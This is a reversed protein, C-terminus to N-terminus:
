DTPAAIINCDKLVQRAAIIEADPSGPHRTLEDLAEDFMQPLYGSIFPNSEKPVDDAKEFTGGLYGSGTKTEGDIITEARAESQWAQWDPAEEATFGCCEKHIPGADQDHEWHISVAISPAAKRLADKLIRLGAPNNPYNM